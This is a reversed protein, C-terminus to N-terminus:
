DINWHYLSDNPFIGPENTDQHRINPVIKAVNAWNKVDEYAEDTLFLQYPERAYHNYEIRMDLLRQPNLGTCDTYVYYDMQSHPPAFGPEGNVCLNAGRLSITDGPIGVARKIYNERKDIPRNFPPDAEMPYNFVVVDNREIEQFGPLRKYGIKIGE